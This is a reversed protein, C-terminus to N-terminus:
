APRYIWKLDWPPGSLNKTSIDDSGCIPCSDYRFANGLGCLCNECRSLVDGDPEAFGALFRRPLTRPLSWSGAHLGWLWIVFYHTQFRQNGDEDFILKLEGGVYERAPRTAAQDVFGLIKEILDADEPNITEDVLALLEEKEMNTCMRREAKSVLKLGSALQELRKIRHILSM